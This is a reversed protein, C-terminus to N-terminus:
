LFIMSIIYNKFSMKKKKRHMSFYFLRVFLIRDFVKFTEQNSVSQESKQKNSVSQNQLLIEEEVIVNSNLPTAGKPFFSLSSFSLSIIFTCYTKKRL